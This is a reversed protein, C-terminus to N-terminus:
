ATQPKGHSVVRLGAISFYPDTKGDQVDCGKSLAFRDFEVEHM